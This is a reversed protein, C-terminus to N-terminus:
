LDLRVDYNGGQFKLLLRVNRLERERVLRVAALVNPLQRAEEIDTTWDGAGTLFHGTRKDQIVRRIENTGEGM